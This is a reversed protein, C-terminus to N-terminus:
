VLQAMVTNALLLGHDTLRLRGHSIELLGQETLRPLIDGYYTTAQIKYRNNLDDLSVGATMRLGMIVTERFAAENDLQEEEQWGGGTEMLDCFRKVNAIAARRTGEICSVAGPGLGLYSGNQWYNINHRCEFGPLSYNSIEYRTLGAAIVMWATQELMLLVTDEDPLILKGQSHQRSFPTDGEITLEYISLHEPALELAQQLTEQWINLEQDPLGYMLDLNINDFGAQRAMQATQAADDASHARGIRALEQDNFSQVGISLRNFGARRLVQLGHGDVTAPNVEISIELDDPCDFHHLCDQLLDALIEPSLMTPTGGGFFITAPQQAKIEELEATQRIQQRVAEVYGSTDPRGPISFFDCYFCKQLCFPVHLYIGFNKPSHPYMKLIDIEVPKRIVM